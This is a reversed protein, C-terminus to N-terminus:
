AVQTEIHHLLRERIDAVPVRDIVQAFFGTVLLRTAEEKPLGRSMLYFLQDDNIPGVTAGHTCRVDNAEIELKPISDARSQSSLLMNRNAQYANTKQAGQNVRILGEFISHAKDRLAGKYLLDSTAHPAAHVQLTDFEMQQDGTPFYMGLLTVFAGSEDLVAEINSKSVKSGLGIECWTTNSDKKAIARKLSYQFVNKGYEQLSVYNLNAREGVFMEVAGNSLAQGALTQSAHTDIFTAQSGEDLVIISHPFYSASDRDFLFFSQFPLEVSMNKPVYLFTGGNWFAGHLAVLKNENLQVNTSMFYKQVLSEHEKLATALECFIVGKTRLEQDIDARVCNGNNLVVSGGRAGSASSLLNVISDIEDSSPKTNGAVSIPKLANLMLGKANLRSSVPLDSRPNEPMENYITL